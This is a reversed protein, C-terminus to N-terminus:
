AAAARDRRSATCEASCVDGPVTTARRPGAPPRTRGGTERLPSGPPRLGGSLNPTSTAAAAPLHSNRLPRHADGPHQRLLRDGRGVRHPHPQRDSHRGRCRGPRQLTGAPGPLRGAPGHVADGGRAPRPRAAKRDSRPRDPITPPRQHLSSRSPAAPRHAAGPTRGSWNRKGISWSSTSCTEKCGSGSGFPSTPMSCPRSRSPSAQGARFAEYLAVLERRLVGMSWGDTVIHHMGVLLVQRQEDLRVLQFRVLPGRALDFPEAIVARKLRQLEGQHRGAPLDRLDVVSLRVATPAAVLQIPEGDRVAFTTRLSEHRRVLETVTRELADLDFAGPLAVVAPISYLPSDPALQALFWLRQQAFSQPAERRGDPSPAAAVLPPATDSTPNQENAELWAILGAVTPTNFFVPIPVEVGVASRLRAVVQMALLSHGGLEFFNDNVGVKDVGLLEVWIAAIIVETRTGAPVFSTDDATPELVPLARRNLKGSPTLPLEDVAMFLTPVMYEPLYLRGFERLEAATPVEGEVPVVYVGLQQRATAVVVAQRVGPHRGLVAEVEGLEIRFGRVKVQQDVRGLFELQGDPLWRVLDGTRYLRGGPQDGFPDAVFREATLDPRGHYGRALGPGGLYLEGPVGVPVPRMQRDLVYARVNPLPRGLPPKRGPDWGWALTAGITAETPGYGNLLRRGESWRAALEASLAEGGVTLTRLEPLEEEAPLAALVATVLTTTTIHQDRLLGILGPGPLLEERRALCLTAGAVLGRFIEGLSADFSLAITCLVRSDSRLPPSGLPAGNDESAVDVATCEPQTLM